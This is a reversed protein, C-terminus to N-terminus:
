RGFNRRGSAIGMGGPVYLGLFEGVACQRGGVGVAVEDEAGRVRGSGFHSGDGCSGMARDELEGHVRGVALEIGADHAVGAGEPRWVRLIWGLEDDGAAM